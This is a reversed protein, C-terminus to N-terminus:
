PTSSAAVEETKSLLVIGSVGQIIWSSQKLHSHSVWPSVSLRHCEGKILWRSTLDFAQIVGVVPHPFISWRPFKVPQQSKPASLFTQKKQKHSHKENQNKISHYTIVALCVRIQTRGERKLYLAKNTWICGKLFSPFRCRLRDIEVGANWERMFVLKNWEWPHSLPM